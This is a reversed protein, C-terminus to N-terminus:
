RSWRLPPGDVRKTYRLRFEVFQDDAHQQAEMTAAAFKLATGANAANGAVAEVLKLAQKVRPDANIRDELNARNKTADVTQTQKWITKWSGDPLRVLFHSEVTVRNVALNHEVRTVRFGRVDQQEATKKAMDFERKRSPKGQGLLDALQDNLQSRFMESLLRPLDPVAEENDTRFLVEGTGQFDLRQRYDYEILAQRAAWQRDDDPLAPFRGSLDIPSDQVDADKAKLERLLDFASRSEVDALKERWAMAAIQRHQARQIYVFRVRKAPVTLLVFQSDLTGAPKRTEKSRKEIRALESTLFRQLAQDKARRAQWQRIRQPLRAAGDRLEDIERQHHDRYFAPATQKLWQRQVAVILTGQADREVIAGLLRPGKVITVCDVCLRKLEIRPTRAAASRHSTFAVAVFGFLLLCRMNQIGAAPSNESRGRVDDEIICGNSCFLFSWKLWLRFNERQVELSPVATQRSM